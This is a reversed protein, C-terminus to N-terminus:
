FHVRFTGLIEPCLEEMRELFVETIAELEASDECDGINFKVDLKYMLEYFQYFSEVISKADIDGTDLRCLLTGVYKVGASYALKADVVSQNHKTREWRSEYIRSEDVEVRLIPEVRERYDKTIASLEM